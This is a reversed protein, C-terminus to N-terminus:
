IQNHYKNLQFNVKRKCIYPFLYIGPLGHDRGRQINLAILDMGGAGTQSEFLHNIIDPAFQEDSQEGNQETLGETLENM